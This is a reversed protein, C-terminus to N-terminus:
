MVAEWVNNCKHCLWQIKTTATIYSGVRTIPKNHQALYEDISENTHPAVNSCRACGTDANIVNNLTTTWEYGCMQCVFDYKDIIRKYSQHMIIKKNHLTEIVRDYQTASKNAGAQEFSCVPCGSQKTLVGNPSSSWQHNCVKCGWMLPIDFGQYDGIRRISRDNLKTDIDNNTYKVNGYCGPCGSKLNLVSNPTANWQHACVKCEWVIKTAANSYEGLRTITRNEASLREDVTTNNLKTSMYLEKIYLTIINLVM